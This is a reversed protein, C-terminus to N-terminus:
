LGGISARTGRGEGEELISRLRRLGKRLGRKFFGRAFLAAELFRDTPLAPETELELRVRTADGPAPDVEWLMSLKNRNYKGGRGFALIRHPADVQAFTVDAWGFRNGRQDIRFRAGAGRGTSEVRTLRWETLFHDLFEPHNAIDALYAFVEDRPRDITTEVVVPDM